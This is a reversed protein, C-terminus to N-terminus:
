GTRSSMMWRSRYCAPLLDLSVPVQVGGSTVFADVPRLTELATLLPAARPSGATDRLFTKAEEVPPALDFAFAALEAEFRGKVLDWIRGVVVAPKHQSDYLTTHPERLRLKWDLAISPEAIAEVVGGWSVPAICLGFLAFGVRAEGVANIRLRGDQTGVDIDRVSLSRCGGATAWLVAPGNESGIQRTLASRLMPYDITLPFTLAGASAPRTLTYLVV